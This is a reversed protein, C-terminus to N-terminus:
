KTDKSYLEKRKKELKETQTAYYVQKSNELIKSVIESLGILSQQKKFDLLPYTEAIKIEWDKLKEYQKSGAPTYKQQKIDKAYNVGQKILSEYSEKTM